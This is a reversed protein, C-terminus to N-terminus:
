RRKKSLLISIGLACVPALVLSVGTHPNLGVDDASAYDIIEEDPEEIIETDDEIPPENQEDDTIIDDPDEPEVEEEDEEEDPVVEVVANETDNQQSTEETAVIIQEKTEDVPSSVDCSLIVSEIKIGQAYDAGGDFGYYISRLTSSTYGGIDSLVNSIDFTITGDGSITSASVLSGTSEYNFFLGFLSNTGSSYLAGSTYDQIGGRSWNSNIAPSASKLRFIIKGNTQKNFFAAVQSALGEFGKMGKGHGLESYSLCEIENRSIFGDANHDTVPILPFDFYVEKSVYKFDTASTLIDSIINTIDTGYTFNTVVTFIKGVPYINTNVGFDNYIWEDETKYYADVVLTISHIKTFSDVLFGGAYAVGTFIDLKWYDGISVAKQTCEADTYNDFQYEVKEIYNYREGEVILAVKTVTYDSGSAKVVISDNAPISPTLITSYSTTNNLSIFGTNSTMPFYLENLRASTTVSMAVCLISVLFLCFIKKM